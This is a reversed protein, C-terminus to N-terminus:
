RVLRAFEDLTEDGENGYVPDFSFSPVIEAGSQHLALVSLFYGIEECALLSPPQYMAAFNQLFSRSTARNLWPASKALVDIFELFGLSYLAAQDAVEAAGALSTEFDILAGRATGATANAAIADTTENAPRGLLNVLFYKAFAYKVQDSRMRDMGIATLRDVVKHCMRSYVVSGSKAIPLSATLKAWKEHSDILVAGVSLLGFLRRVDMNGAGSAPVYPVANVYAAVAGADTRVRWGMLLSPAVVTQKNGLLHIRNNTYLDLARGKLAFREFRRSIARLSDELEAHAVADRSLVVQALAALKAQDPFAYKVLSLERFAKPQTSM